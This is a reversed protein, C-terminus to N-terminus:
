VQMTLGFSNLAVLLCVSTEFELYYLKLSSVTKIHVCTSLYAYEQQRACREGAWGNRMKKKNNHQEHEKQTTHRDSRGSWVEM